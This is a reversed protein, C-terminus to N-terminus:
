PKPPRWARSTSSCKYGAAWQPRTLLTLLREAIAYWELGPSCLPQCALTLASELLLLHRYSLPRVRRAALDGALVM